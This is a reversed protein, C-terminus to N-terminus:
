GGHRCREGAFQQRSCGDRHVHSNNARAPIGSTRRQDPHGAWAPQRHGDRQGARRCNCAGFAPTGNASAANVTFAAPVLSFVPAQSDPVVVVTDCAASNVVLLPTNQYASFNNNRFRLIQANLDQGAVAAVEGSSTQVMVAGSVAQADLTCDTLDDVIAQIVAFDPADAGLAIALSNIANAAGGLAMAYQRSPLSDTAAPVIPDSPMVTVPDFGLASSLATRNTAFAADFAGGPNQLRSRRLLSMTYVNLPTVNAGAPLYAEFGADDAIEVTRRNQPDPQADSEDVYSGGQSVVLLGGFSDVVVAWNGAADTVTQAVPVENAIFGDADASYLLITAGSIPGKSVVGTLTRSAPPSVADPRGTSDDPGGNGGCAALLASVGFLALKITFHSTNFKMM